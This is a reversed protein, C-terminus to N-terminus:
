GSSKREPVQFDPVAGTNVSIAPLRYFRTHHRRCNQRGQRIDEGIRLRLFNRHGLGIGNDGAYPCDCDGRRSIGHGGDCPFCRRRCCRHQHGSRGIADPFEMDGMALSVGVAVADISTAVAALIMNRFGALDVSEDNGRAGSIIMRVGLYSLIVLAVYPAIKSVYAVISYGSIWGAFLCVAQVIGFVAAVSLIKWINIRGLTVSGGLSVVFSDVSLSLALLLIEAFTM